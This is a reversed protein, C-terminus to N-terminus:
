DYVQTLGINIEAYILHSVFAGEGMRRRSLSVVKGIDRTREGEGTERMWGERERV